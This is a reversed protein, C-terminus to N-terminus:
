CNSTITAHTGSVIQVVIMIRALRRIILRTGNCRGSTANLIKLLIVLVGVKLALHHPPMSTLTITNLFKTGIAMAQDDRMEMLDASFFVHERGPMAEAIQTNLSNVVINKTTLIARSDMYGQNAYNIALALFVDHILTDLSPAQHIKPYLTIEVGVSPEVDAKLPFHDIISFEQGNDVRLLYEVYSRYLPDAHLRMNETLTLVCIERWLVSRSLAASVITSLSGKSVVPLCQQFDGRFVVVKDGFPSHPCQMIDRM